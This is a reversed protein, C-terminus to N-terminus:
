PVSVRVRWSQVGRREGDLVLRAGAFEVGALRSLLRGLSRVGGAETVFEAVLERVAQWEAGAGNLAYGALQATTFTQGQLLDGLLPVLAAALRRDAPALLRRAMEDHSERLAAIEASLRRLELALADTM